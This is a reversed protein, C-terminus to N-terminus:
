EKAPAASPAPGPVVSIRDNEDIHVTMIRLARWATLDAESCGADRAHDALSLPPPAATGALREQRRRSAFGWGLLWLCLLGAVFLYNSLGEWLQEWDIGPGRAVRGFLELTEDWLGALGRRMLFLLLLWMAITLIRDRWVIARPRRADTIIPPWDSPPKAIM